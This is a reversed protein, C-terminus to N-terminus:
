LLVGAFTGIIVLVCVIYFLVDYVNEIHNQNEM